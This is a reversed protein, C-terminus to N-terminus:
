LPSIIFKGRAVTDCAQTHVDSPLQLVPVNQGIGIVSPFVVQMPISVGFRQLYSTEKSATEAGFLIELWPVYRTFSAYGNQKFTYKLM